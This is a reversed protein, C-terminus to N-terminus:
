RFMKFLLLIVAGVGGAMFFWLAAKLIRYKFRLIKALDYSQGLVEDALKDKAENVADVYFRAKSYEAIGKWSVLNDSLAHQRPMVCWVALAGAVATLVISSVRLVTYCTCRSSLLDAHSTGLFGLLASSAALTFGAKQDASQLFQRIYTHLHFAFESVRAQPDNEM